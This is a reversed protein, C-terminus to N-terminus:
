VCFFDIWCFSNIDITWCSDTECNWYFSFYCLSFNFDIFHFSLSVFSFTCLNKPRRNCYTFHKKSCSWSSCHQTQSSSANRSCNRSDISIQTRWEIESEFWVVVQGFKRFDILIQSITLSQSKRRLWIFFQSTHTNTQSKIQNSQIIGGACYEL